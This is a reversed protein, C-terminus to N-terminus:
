FDPEELGDKYYDVLNNVIDSDNITEDETLRPSNVRQSFAVSRANDPSLKCCIFVADQLTYVYIATAYRVGRLGWRMTPPLFRPPELGVEDSRKNVLEAVEIWKSYYDIVVLYSTNGLDMIDVGIKEFPKYPVTHPKQELM